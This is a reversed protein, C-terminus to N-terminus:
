AKATYIYDGARKVSLTGRVVDNTAIEFNLNEIYGDFVFNTRSTLATFDGASDATPTTTGDSLALMWQITTGAQYLDILTEQSAYAPDFNFPISLSDANKLGQVFGKTTADLCTVEIEDAAGGLGSVSTPCDMKTVVNGTPNVFFLHTGQSKVAM